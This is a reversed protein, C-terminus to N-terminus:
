LGNGGANLPGTMGFLAEFKDRSYRKMREHYRLRYGGIAKRRKWYKKMYGRMWIRREEPTM